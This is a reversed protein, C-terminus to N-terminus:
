SWWALRAPRPVLRVARSGWSRETLPDAQACAHKSTRTVDGSANRQVVTVPASIHDCFVARKSLSHAVAHTLHTDVLLNWDDEFLNVITGLTSNGANNVVVGV